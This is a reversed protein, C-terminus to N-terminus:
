LEEILKIIKKLNSNEFHHVNAGKLQAIKLDKEYNDGIFLCESASVDLKELTQEVYKKHPKMCGVDDSCVIVDFFTNLKFRTLKAQLLDRSDETVLATKYDSINAALEKFGPMLAIHKVLEEKFLEYGKIVEKFKFKKALQLYSYTRERKKPDEEKIVKPIIKKHWYEYLEEPKKNIQKAFFNMAAMDAIKASKKTQYITNDADFVIARLLLDKTIPNKVIKNPFIMRGPESHLNDQVICNSACFLGLESKGTPVYKDKCYVEVNQKKVKTYFNKGIITGRGIVSSIIKSGSNIKAGRQIISKTITCNKNITGEISSYNNIQVNDQIITDRGIYVGNGITVNKGIKKSEIKNGYKEAFLKHADLINWARGVDVRKGKFLWYNARGGERLIYEAPPIVEDIGINDVADFFKKGNLLVLGVNAFDSPFNDKPKEIIAVLKDEEFKAIGYEQPKKVRRLTAVCDVTPDKNFADLLDRTQDTSAISDGYKVLFYSKQLHERAYLIANVPGKQESQLVFHFNINTTNIGYKNLETKYEQEIYQRIDEINEDNCIFIIDEIGNQIMEDAHHAILPKGYFRIMEKSEKISFPKMRSGKGAVLIVGKVKRRALSIVASSLKKSDHRIYLPKGYEEEVKDQILDNILVRKFRKKLINIESDTAHLYQAGEREYRKIISKAPAKGNIIITDLVNKGLYKEIEDVHETINFNDTVGTQTAANAIYIKRAKSTKITDIMGKPLLNVIISTYLGGPGLVILDANKIENICDPNVEANEKLFLKTIKKKTGYTRSINAEGEIIKGNTLKACVHTNVLTSPMVKGDIKLIKSAEKIAISFNNNNLKALATILLNGFNMGHYASDEKDSEFRYKFLDKMLRPSNSLSVMCNRIDGPALIDFEDRLIGTSRGSDTVAVIACLDQTYRRLGALLLSQGTGGGICVIKVM